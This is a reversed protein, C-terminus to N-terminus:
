KAFKFEGESLEVYKLNDDTNMQDFLRVNFKGHIIKYDNCQSEEIDSINFYSNSAFFM